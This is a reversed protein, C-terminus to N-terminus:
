NQKHHIIHCLPSSNTEKFIHLGQMNLATSTLDLVKSQTKLATYLSKMNQLVPLYAAKNHVLQLM